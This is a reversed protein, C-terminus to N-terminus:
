YSRYTHQIKPNPVTHSSYNNPIMPLNVICSAELALKTFVYSLYNATILRGYRFEPVPFSNMTRPLSVSIFFIYLFFGGACVGLVLLVSKGDKCIGM